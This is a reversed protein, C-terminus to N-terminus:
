SKANHLEYLKAMMQNSVTDLFGVFQEKNMQPNEVFTWGGSSWVVMCKKYGLDVVKFSNVMNKAPVGSVSYSYFRKEDDYSLVTETFAPNSATKRTQGPASCSRTAGVGIAGTIWSDGIFDPTLEEIKDLKRLRAWVEDASAGIIQTKTMIADSNQAKAITFGSFFLAAILIMKKTKM